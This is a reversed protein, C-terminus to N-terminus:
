REKEKFAALSSSNITSLIGTIAIDMVITKSTESLKPVSSNERSLNRFGLKKFVWIIKSLVKIATWM